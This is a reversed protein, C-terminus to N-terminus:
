PLASLLRGRWTYDAAPKCGLVVGAKNKAIIGAYVRRPTVAKKMLIARGNHIVYVAGYATKRIELIRRPVFVVNDTDEPTYLHGNYSITNGM